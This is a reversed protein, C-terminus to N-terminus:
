PRNDNLYPKLTALNDGMNFIDIKSSHLELILSSPESPGFSPCSSSNCPHLLRKKIIMAQDDMWIVTLPLLTNKMWIRHDGPKQYVFLMGGQSDLYPRSMLGQKRLVPTDALELHYVQGKLGVQITEGRGEAMAYGILMALLFILGTKSFRGTRQALIEM